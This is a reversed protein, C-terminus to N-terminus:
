AERECNVITTPGSIFEVGDRRNLETAIELYIEKLRKRNLDLVSNKLGHYHSEEERKEKETRAKTEAVILVMEDLMTLPADPKPDATPDYGFCDSHKWGYKPFTNTMM